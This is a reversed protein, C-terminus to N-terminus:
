LGVAFFGCTEAAIHQFGFDNYRFAVKTDKAFTIVEQPTMEFSDCYLM